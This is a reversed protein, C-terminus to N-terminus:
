RMGGGGLLQRCALENLGVVVVVLVVYKQRGDGCHGAGPFFIIFLVLPVLTVEVAADRVDPGRDTRRGTATPSIEEGGVVKGGAEAGAGSSSLGCGVDVDVRALVIVNVM